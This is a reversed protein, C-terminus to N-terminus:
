FMTLIKATGRRSGTHSRQTLKRLCVVSTPYQPWKHFPAFYNGNRHPKLLVGGGHPLPIDNKKKGAFILIEKTLFTKASQAVFFLPSYEKLLHIPIIVLSYAQYLRNQANVFGFLYFLDDLKKTKIHYIGNKDLYLKSEEKLNPLLLEDPNEYLNESHWLPLLFKELITTAM